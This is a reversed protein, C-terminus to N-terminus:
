VLPWPNAQRKNLATMIAHYDAFRIHPDHGPQALYARAQDQLWFYPLFCSGLMIWKQRLSINRLGYERSARLSWYIRNYLVKDDDPLYGAPWIGRMDIMMSAALDPEQAIRQREKIKETLIFPSKQLLM